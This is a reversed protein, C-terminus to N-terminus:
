ILNSTLIPPNKMFHHRCHEGRNAFLYLNEPRDDSCDENIHHVVEDKTLKRQLYKEAVYRYRHYRMEDIWLIWHGSTEQFEGGKWQSHNEGKLKGSNAKCIKDKTEQPMGDKFQELAKQRLKEKTKQLMPSDRYRQLQMKSSNDKSIQTREYVGKPM